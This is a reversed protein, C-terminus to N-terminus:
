GSEAIRKIAALTAPIGAVAQGARLEARADAGEGYRERYMAQGAPLFEWEETLRTGGDTPDLRYSWRVYGEGVLWAFERGPEATVVESRTEWVQGDAENRGAFRAGPRPGDGDIWWCQRCIPSWEGTRSIDTVLDYVAQPSAAIEISESHSFSTV